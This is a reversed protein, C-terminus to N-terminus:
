ALSELAGDSAINQGSYVYAIVGFNMHGKLACRERSLGLVAYPFSDELRAVTVM